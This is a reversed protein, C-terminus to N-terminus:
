TPIGSRKTCSFRAMGLSQASAVRLVNDHTPFRQSRM